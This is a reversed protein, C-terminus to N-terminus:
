RKTQDPEAPPASTEGPASKEPPTTTDGPAKKEKALREKLARYDDFDAEGRRVKARLEALEQQVKPDHTHVQLSPSADMLGLRVGRWDVVSVVGATFGAACLWLLAPRVIGAPPIRTTEAKKPADLLKPFRRPLQLLASLVLGATVFMMAIQQPDTEKDGAEPNALYLLLSTLNNGAHAAIGPWISGSRWALWGFLMGLAWRAAFGVPDFHFASFIFGGLVVAAWAPLRQLLARNLVGRFALEECLPAALGVALTTALLEGGSLNRFLQSADFLETVSKPFLRLAVWQVPAAVAFFNVVGLLFGYGIGPLFATDLGTTRVAGFGFARLTLIPVALFIALETFWMGVPVNMLQMVGGVTLFGALTLAASVIAPAVLDAPAPNAPPAAPPPAPFSENM